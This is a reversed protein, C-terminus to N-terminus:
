LLFEEKGDVTINVGTLLTLYRRWPSAKFGHVHVVCLMFNVGLRVPGSGPELPALLHSAHWRAVTPNIGGAHQASSSANGSKWLFFFFFGGTHTSVRQKM